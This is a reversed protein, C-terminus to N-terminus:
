DEKKMHKKFEELGGRKFYIVTDITLYLLIILIFFIIYFM